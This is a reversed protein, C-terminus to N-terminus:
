EVQVPLIVPKNIKAPVKVELWRATSAPGRKGNSAVARVSWLYKGKGLQHLPLTKQDVKLVKESGKGDAPRLVVEYGTPKENASEELKVDWELKPAAKGDALDIVADELPFKLQPIPPLKAVSVIESKLALGSNPNRLAKEQIVSVVPAEPDPKKESEVKKEPEAKAKAQASAPAAAAPTKSKDKSSDPVPKEIRDLTKAAVAQAARKQLEQDVPIDEVSVEIRSEAAEVPESTEAEAIQIGPRKELGEGVQVKESQGGVMRALEDAGSVEQTGGAVNRMSPQIEVKGSNGSSKAMVIPKTAVVPASPKANRAKAAAKEAVKEMSAKTVRAVSIKSTAEKAVRVKGAGSVFNLKLEETDGALVVMAGAGIELEGGSVFVLKAKSDEGTSITDGLAFFSGGQARDWTLQNKGLRRVTGASTRLEAIPQHVLNFYGQLDAVFLAAFVLALISCLIALRNMWDRM